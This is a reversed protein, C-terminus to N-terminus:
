GAGCLPLVAREQRRAPNETCYRYFAAITAATTPEVYFGLQALQAHVPMIEEEPALIISGGTSLIAQLVQTGRMPKAIAIGEAVTGTNVM